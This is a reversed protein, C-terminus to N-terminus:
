SAAPLTVLRNTIMENCILQFEPVWAVNLLSLLSSIVKITRNVFGVAIVTRIPDELHRRRRPNHAVIDEEPPM